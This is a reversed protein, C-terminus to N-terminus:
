PTVGLYIAPRTQKHFNRFRESLDNYINAAGRDGDRRRPPRRDSGIVREDADSPVVEPENKGRAEVSDLRAGVGGMAARLAEGDARSLAEVAINVVVCCEGRDSESDNNLARKPSLPPPPPTATAGSSVVRLTVFVDVVPLRRVAEDAADAEKPPSLGVKPSVQRDVGAKVTFDGGRERVGDPETAAAAATPIAGGGQGGVAKGRAVAAAGAGM